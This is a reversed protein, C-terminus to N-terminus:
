FLSSCLESNSWLHILLTHMHVSCHELLSWKSINLKKENVSLVNYLCFSYCIKTEILACKPSDSLNVMFFIKNPCHSAIVMNKLQTCVHTFNLFTSSLLSGSKWKWMTSITPNSNDNQRKLKAFTSCIHGPFTRETAMSQDQALISDPQTM